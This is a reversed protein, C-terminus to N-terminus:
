YVRYNAMESQKRARIPPLSM